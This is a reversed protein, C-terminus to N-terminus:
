VLYHVQDCDDHVWASVKLAKKGTGWLAQFATFHSTMFIQPISKSSSPGTPNIYTVAVSSTKRKALYLPKARRPRAPQPQVLRGSAGASDTAEHNGRRRFWMGRAVSTFGCVRSSVPTLAAPAFGCVCSSVPMLAAPIFGCMRSSVPTLAAPIFGCVYM